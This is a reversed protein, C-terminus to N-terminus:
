YNAPNGGPDWQDDATQQVPTANQQSSTEQDLGDVSNINAGPILHGYTDATVQNFEPGDTRKRLCPLRRGPDRSGREGTLAYPQVKLNPFEVVKGALQLRLVTVNRLHRAHHRPAPPM